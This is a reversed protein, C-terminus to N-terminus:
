SIFGFPFSRIMKNENGRVTTTKHSPTTKMLLFFITVVVIAVRKIILVILLIERHIIPQKSECIMLTFSTEFFHLTFTLNQM